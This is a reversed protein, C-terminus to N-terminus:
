RMAKRTNRRLLLPGVLDMLWGFLIELWPTIGLHFPVYVVRRPRKLLRWIKEAVREPPVAYQESPIPLGAPRKAAAGYFGTAVPGPRVVSVRVKTGRMERHLATTFADLFSKTASYMAVGQSPLGGAISGVNIIHGSNRERMDSLFLSTLHVAAENNVQMMELATSWPMDAYYGYWGFGANNILVDAGGYDSNVRDYVQQRDEELRLDALVIKAEAGSERIAQALESLRDESRAVLVVVLGESALRKATTEGIGRSAGTVVAVKRKWDKGKGETKM